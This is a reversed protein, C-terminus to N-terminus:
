TPTADGKYVSFDMNKVLDSHLIVGFSLAGILQFYISWLIPQLHAMDYTKVAEDAIFFLSIMISTFVMSKVTITIERRRDEATQHPNLKRGYIFWRGFVLFYINVFIPGAIKSFFDSIGSEAFDTIAFDFAITLFILSAALIFWGPSLFDFLRRPQLDATRTTSSNLQRMKKFNRFEWISLLILSSFQVAAYLTVITEEGHGEPRYGTALGWILLLIGVLLAATNLGRYLTMHGPAKTAANGPYLKPYDAPPYKAYVYKIRGIIKKPFYYSLLFIQSIFILYFLITLTM